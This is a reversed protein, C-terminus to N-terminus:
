DLIKVAECEGVEVVDEEIIDGYRDAHFEHHIPCSVVLEEKPMHTNKQLNHTLKITQESLQKTADKIVQLLEDEQELDEMLRDIMEYNKRLAMDIGGHLLEYQPGLQPERHRRQKQQKQKLQRQEKEVKKPMKMPKFSPGLFDFADYPDQELSMGYNHHQELKKSMKLPKFSPALVETLTDYTNLDSPLGYNTEQQVGKIVMNPARIGFEKRQHKGDASVTKNIYGYPKSGNSSNSDSSNIVLDVIGNLFEMIAPMDPHQQPKSLMELLPPLTAAAVKPKMHKSSAVNGGADELPKGPKYSLELDIRAAQMKPPAMNYYMLPHAVISGGLPAKTASAGHSRRKQYKRRMSNDLGFLDNMYAMYEVDKRPATTTKGPTTTKGSTTGVSTGKTTQEGKKPTMNTTLPKLTSTTTTVTTTTAAVTTGNTAKGGAAAGDGAKPATANILGLALPPLLSGMIPQMMLLLTFGFIMLVNMMRIKNMM